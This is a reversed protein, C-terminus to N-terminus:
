IYKSTENLRSGPTKEHIKKLTDVWGQPPRKIGLGAADGLGPASSLFREAKGAGCEPCERESNMESIKCVVEFQHSCEKCRYDYTPM